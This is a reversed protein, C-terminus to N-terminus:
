LGRLDFLHMLRVAYSVPRVEDPSDETPQPEKNSPPTVEDPPRQETPPEERGDPNENPGAPLNESRPSTEATTDTVPDLYPGVTDDDHVRTVRPSRSSRRSTGDRATTRLSLRMGTAPPM